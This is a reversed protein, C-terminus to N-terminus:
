GRDLLAGDTLECKHLRRQNCASTLNLDVRRGSVIFTAIGLNAPVQFPSCSDPNLDLDSKSYEPDILAAAPRIQREAKRHGFLPNAAIWPEPVEESNVIKALDPEMVRHEQYGGSYQVPQCPAPLGSASDPKGDLRVQRRSRM